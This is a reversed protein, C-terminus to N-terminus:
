FVFGPPKQFGPLPPAPADFAPFGSFDGDARRFLTAKGAMGTGVVAVLRGGERLQQQLAEPVLEVAGDILIADYPAGAAWGVTLDGAVVSVRPRDALAKRAIGILVPDSELATVEAVLEAVLAASYGSGCGVVLAREADELDALQLLKALVMPDLLFRKAGGREGAIQVARDRYALTGQGEPLFAERPIRLFAELVHQDTVDGTRIQTDVMTQRARAFDIMGTGMHANSAGANQAVGKRFALAGIEPM